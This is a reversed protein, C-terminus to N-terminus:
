INKSEPHEFVPIFYVLISNIYTIQEHWLILKVYVFICQSFVFYIIFFGSNPWPHIFKTILSKLTFSVLFNLFCQNTPVVASATEKLFPLLGIKILKIVSSSFFSMNPVLIPIQHPSHPAVMISKGCNKIHSAYSKAKWSTCQEKIQYKYNAVSCSNM